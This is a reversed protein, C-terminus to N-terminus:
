STNGDSLSLYGSHQYHYNFCAVAEDFTLHEKQMFANRMADEARGVQMVQQLSHEKVLGPFKTELPIPNYPDTFYILGLSDKRWPYEGELYIYGFPANYVKQLLLFLPELKIDMKVGSNLDELVTPYLIYPNNYLDQHNIILSGDNLQIFSVQVPM